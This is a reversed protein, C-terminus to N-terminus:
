SVAKSSDATGSGAASSGATPGGQGWAPTQRRVLFQFLGVFLALNGLCFYFPLSLWKVHRGRRYCLYGAFATAYFLAQAALSLTSWPAPLWLSSILVLLMFLPAVTRLAKHSFFCFAVWGRGPRLMDRLELIQQCNGAAIRRRRAFEGGVSALELEWAVAEPDYVARYGQAVIRMPILYDDNISSGTLKTFLPRRIAYFAGHAGLISHLRSEQRKIFTEYKWYVGEGQARLDAPGKLRYLGCVCGVKPDAFSRVVKRLADRELESSTDSFVVIEGRLQPVVRTLMASKGLHEPMALLRVGQGAFSQVIQNTRDTSGDSCVVIELQSAPYDLALTNRVKGEIHAQENRAPIVLSVTPTVPQRIPQRGFVRALLWVLPPYGFYIYLLIAISLWFVIM